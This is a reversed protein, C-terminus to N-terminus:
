NRFKHRIDAIAHARMIHAHCLQCIGHLSRTLPVLTLATTAEQVKRDPLSSRKFFFFIDRDCPRPAIKSFSSCTRGTLRSHHADDNEIKSVQNVHSVNMNARSHTGRVYPHFIRCFERSNQTEDRGLKEHFGNM